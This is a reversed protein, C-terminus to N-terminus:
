HGAMGTRLSGMAKEFQMAVGTKGEMGAARLAPIFAEKVLRLEDPGLFRLSIEMDDLIDQIAEDTKEATQEYM